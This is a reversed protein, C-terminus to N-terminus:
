YVNAIIVIPDLACTSPSGKMLFSCVETVSYVTAIIPPSPVYTQPPLSFVPLEETIHEINETLFSAPGDTATLLQQYSLAQPSCVAMSPCQETFCWLVVLLSHGTLRSLLGFECPETIEGGSSLLGSVPTFFASHHFLELDPKSPCTHHLALLDCTIKSM